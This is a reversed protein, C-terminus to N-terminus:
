NYFKAAFIFRRVEEKARKRDSARAQIRALDAASRLQMLQYELSPKM